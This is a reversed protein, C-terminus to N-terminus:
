VRPKSGFHRCILDSIYDYDYPIYYKPIVNGLVKM